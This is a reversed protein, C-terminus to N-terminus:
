SARVVIKLFVSSKTYLRLIFAELANKKSACCFNPDIGKERRCKSSSIFAFTPLVSHTLCSRKCGYSTHPVQFHELIYFIIGSDPPPYM